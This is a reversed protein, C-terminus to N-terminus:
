EVRRFTGSAEDDDLTLWAPAAAPRDDRQADILLKARQDAVRRVDRDYDLEARARMAEVQAASRNVMLRREEVDAINSHFQTATTMTSRMVGYAFAGGWAFVVVGALVGLAGAAWNAGFRTELWWAALGVIILLVVLLAVRDWNTTRVNRVDGESWEKRSM